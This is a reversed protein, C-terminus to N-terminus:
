PPPLPTTAESDCRPIVFEVFVTAGPDCCTGLEEATFSASFTCSSVDGFVTANHTAVAGNCSLTIKWTGGDCCLQVYDAGASCGEGISATSLYCDGVRTVATEYGCLNDCMGIFGVSVTGGYSDMDPCAEDSCTLCPEATTTTTTTTTPPSTTTTTTTPPSTTTTSGPICHPITFTVIVSGTEGCCGTVEDDTFAASFACLNDVSQVDAAHTATSGGCVLTIEWVGDNCCLSVQDNELDCDGSTPLAVWCDAQRYVPGGNFACLTECGGWDSVTAQGVDELAGCVGDGCTYCDPTTTTTACPCITIVQGPLTCAVDEPGFIPELDGEEPAPTTDGHLFCHAGGQYVKWHSGCCQYLCCTDTMHYPYCLYYIILLHVNCTGYYIPVIVVRQQSCNDVYFVVASSTIRPVCGPSGPPGAPGAPGIPGAPGPPGPDGVPGEPPLPPLPPTGIGVPIDIDPCDTIPAPPLPINCDAVIPDDSIPCLVPVECGRPDFVPLFEGEACNSEELPTSIFTGEIATERTGGPLTVWSSNGGTFGDVRLTTNGHEINYPVDQVLRISVSGDTLSELSFEFTLPVRDGNGFTYKIEATARSVGPGAYEFNFHRLTAITVAEGIVIQPAAYPSIGLGASQADVSVGWFIRAERLWSAFRVPVDSPQYSTWRSDVNAVISPM